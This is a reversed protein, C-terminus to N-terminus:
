WNGVSVRQTGLTQGPAPDSVAPEPLTTTRPANDPVPVVVSNGILQDADAHIAADHSAVLLMLKLQAGNPLTGAALQRVVWRILCASVADLHATPEDLVVLWARENSNFSAAAM